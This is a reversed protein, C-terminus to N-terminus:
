INKIPSSPYNERTPIRLFYGRRPSLPYNRRTVDDIQDLQEFPEVFKSENLSQIEGVEKIEEINQSQSQVRITTATSLRSKSEEDIIKSLDDHDLTKPKFFSLISKCNFEM